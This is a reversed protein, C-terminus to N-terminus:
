PGCARSLDWGVWGSHGPSILSEPPIPRACTCALSGWQALPPCQTARRLPFCGSLNRLAWPWPPSARSPVAHSPDGLEKAAATLQGTPAGAKHPPPLEQDPAQARQGPLLFCGWQRHERVQLTDCRTPISFALGRGKVRSWVSTTIHGLLDPTALWFSLLGPLKTTLFVPEANM